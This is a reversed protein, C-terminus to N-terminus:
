TMGADLHLTGMPIPLGLRQRIWHDLEGALTVALGPRFYGAWGRLLSNLEGIITTLDRGRERATIARVRRRFRELSKGHIGIRTKGMYRTIRFGLYKSHWPRSVESKEENVM